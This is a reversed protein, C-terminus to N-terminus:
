FSNCLWLKRRLEVLHVRFHAMRRNRRLLVETLNVIVRAARSERIEALVARRAEPSTPFDIEGAIDFVTTRDRRRVPIQV